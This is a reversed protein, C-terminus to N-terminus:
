KLWQNLGRKGSGYKNVTYLSDFESTENFCIDGGYSRCYFRRGYIELTIDTKSKGGYHYKVNLNRWLDVDFEDANFINGCNIGALDEKEATVYNLVKFDRALRKSYESGGTDIIMVTELNKARALSKVASYQNYDEVGIVLLNESDYVAVSTSYYGGIERIFVCNSNILASGFLIAAFLIASVVACPKILRKKGFLFVFGFLFLVAAIALGIEPTCIDTVAYPLDACKETLLLMSGAGIKAVFAFAACVPSLWQLATMLFASVLTIQAVPIMILNLFIGALSVYGFFAFIVPLTTIFVALSALFIDAFFKLIYNKPKIKEALLPEVTVLGLVATVTLLAGADTVAFPNLCIVFVSFGLSNLTDSKENIVEGALLIIMMIGARTVSKSFGTLAMYSLVSFVSIVSRPIKPVKLKKLFFFLAGSLVTLHLGSVALLHSTGSSSFDNKIDDTLNSKDGILLATIVAAEKKPAKGFIFDRLANRANLIFREPGSVYSNEVGFSSLNASLFIGNGFNGFSDFGNEATLRLKLKGNIIQGYDADIRKKGRLKLTIRQPANECDVSVTKVTYTFFDGTESEKLESIYFRTSVTKGDLAKQPLFVGAYVCIFLACALFASIMCVPVAAARRTKKVIVSLAFAAGTVALAAFAAKIGFINLVILTIAFSFGIHAFVRKM